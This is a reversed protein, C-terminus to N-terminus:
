RSRATVDVPPLPDSRRVHLRVSCLVSVCVVAHLRIILQSILMAWPHNERTAQLRGANIIVNQIENLFNHPRKNVIKVANEHVYKHCNEVMSTSAILQVPTTTGVWGHPRYCEACHTSHRYTDLTSRTIFFLYFYIFLTLMFCIPMCLNIM